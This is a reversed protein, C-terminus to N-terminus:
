ERKKPKCKTAESRAWQLFLLCFVMPVIAYGANARGGAYFVYIAGCITLIGFIVALVKAM